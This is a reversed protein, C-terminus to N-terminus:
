WDEDLVHQAIHQQHILHEKVHEEIIYLYTYKTSTNYRSAISSQLLHVSSNFEQGIEQLGPISLRPIM